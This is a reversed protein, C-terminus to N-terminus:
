ATLGLFSRVVAADQHERLGGRLEALTSSGRASEVGGMLELVREAVEVAADLEGLALHAEARRALHIASDGRHGGTGIEGASADRVAEGFHVLARKPEGLALAASGAAQHLEGATVWYVAPLDEAPAGAKSYAALAQDVARYSATAEGAVSHARAKRAYLMAIVRPSSIVGASALAAELLHLAGRPDGGTYRANAWFAHVTAGTTTDGASGAARLAAVFQREAEAHYGSDYACWGALRCAEAAASYLRRGVQESHTTEALLRRIIRIETTAADYVHGGGLEDDLHRLAALRVDLQTAVESSIRRGVQTAASAPEATGWQAVMAALTGTSAILFGRRDVPGGVERLVTVSGAPTWPSELITRDDRIALLLWDPWGRADVEGRPVQLLHAMAYQSTIGPTATGSIWRSVKERRSAMGGYGLKSHRDAVQRLFSTATWRRHKLVVTLPHRERVTEM